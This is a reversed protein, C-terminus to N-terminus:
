LELNKLKILGKLFDSLGGLSLEAIHKKDKIVSKAVELMNAKLINFEKKTLLGADKASKATDILKKGFFVISRLDGIPTDVLLRPLKTTGKLIKGVAKDGVLETIQKDLKSDLTGIKGTIKDLLGTVGKVVKADKPTKATVKTPEKKKEVTIPNGTVEQIKTTIKKRTETPTSKKMNFNKVAPEIKKKIKAKVIKEERNESPKNLEGKIGSIIKKTAEPEPLKKEKIEVIKDKLKQKVKRISTEADVNRHVGAINPSSRESPSPNSKERSTFALLMVALAGAIIYPLLSTKEPPPPPPTPTPTPVPTPDDDKGTIIEIIKEDFHDAGEQTVDSTIDPKMYDPIAEEPLVLTGKYEKIFDFSAISGNLLRLQDTMSLDSYEIGQAHLKPQIWIIKRSLSPFKQHTRGAMITLRHRLAKAEKKSLQVM